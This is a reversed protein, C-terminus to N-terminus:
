QGSCSMCIQLTFAYNENDRVEMIKINGCDKELFSKKKKKVM